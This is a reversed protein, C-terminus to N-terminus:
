DSLGTMTAIYSRTKAAEEKRRSASWKLENGMIAVVRDIASMAGARDLFAVRTRRCLVDIANSAWEKRVAYLVEAELAPLQSTIKARKGSPDMSLVEVARDGYAQALHRAVEKELKHEKELHGALDVSYGHAGIIQYKTTKCSAPYAIKNGAVRLAEDLSEEAMRRYTTWKGGTISVLGAASVDIAHERSVNATGDVVSKEDLHALPRVGAWASRVDKPGASVDLYKNIYELIYAVDEPNPSPNDTIKMPRDTTGALTKGMWPLVFLVRGDATKPILMGMTSPSYEKDLVVHIGVSGIREKSKEKANSLAEERTASTPDMNRISSSFSGAANIVVKASVALTANTEPDRLVVGSVEKRYKPVIAEGGDGADGPKKEFDFVINKAGKAGGRQFMKSGDTAVERVLLDSVFMHNFVLAGHAAATLAISVNMRSDNFQGDYYVVAGKLDHARLAPFTKRAEDASLYYSSHLSASGSLWDYVKLGAYVYPVELWSYLPTMIPLAEALHPAIRLFVGREALAERVLHYQGMDLDKVAKELYRVGGHVLKTSRSSSGCGFDDAEVLLTKLGRLSADLAIGSGTAGGGIVVVDVEPKKRLAEWMERRSPVTLHANRDLFAESVIRKRRRQESVTYAGGATMVLMGVTLLRTGWM